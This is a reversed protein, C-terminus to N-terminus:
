QPSAGRVDLLVSSRAVVLGTTLFICRQFSVSVLIRLQISVAKDYPRGALPHTSYFRFGRIKIFCLVMKLQLGIKSSINNPKKKIKAAGIVTIQIRQGGKMMKTIKAAM